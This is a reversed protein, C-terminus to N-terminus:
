RQNNELMDDEDEYNDYLDYYNQVDYGYPRCEPYIRHINYHVPGVKPVDILFHLHKM